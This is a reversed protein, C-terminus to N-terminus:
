TKVMVGKSTLLERVANVTSDAHDTMMSFHDGPVTVTEEAWDAGRDRLHELSQRARVMLVPADITPPRWDRLIRTYAGMAFLRTDDVGLGARSADDAACLITPLTRALLESDPSFTDLLVVAAPGAGISELQAALGYAIWGGSSHGSLAFGDGIDLASIQEAQARLLTDLNAPLPEGAVFGPLTLVQVAREGQLEQAFKAYEQPSSLAGISPIMVLTSAGAGSALRIPSPLEAAAPDDFSPRFASASALVEMFENLTDKRRAEGLLNVLTHGGDQAADDSGSGASLQAALFGAVGAPTPHDALALIPLSLGTAAALSNRLDLAGLSDLGLEGLARDPEVEDASECGLVAAARDRVIGLLEREQEPGPLRSLRIRLAAPEVSHTAPAQALRRLVPALAGAEAQARLASADLGVMTLAPEGMERACDFLDLGREVSLPRIGLRKVRSLAVQDLEVALNSELMWAGWAMSVAPLGQARRQAALADLFVNAAAYNAQGAAGLVGAVSSFLLFQSLNLGKTLEHLHWAGDVKPRMVGALRKRDLSALLGNDLVAAAHVVAGLPHEEPISDIVRALQAREAVDCAAVTVEAGLQALEERLAGAGPAEAGRRSVLLIHRIGHASVLHRAITAGAGGAGTVLVTAVPDIPEGCLEGETPRASTLRPALLKGERVALLPEDSGVNLAQPLAQWAAESGDVDVLAFRGRHEAQASRLLGWLPALRLDPSEGGADVAGETVFALRAAELPAAALWAQALQLAELSAAHAAEPLVGDRESPPCVLVVEPASDSAAVADLLAPLDHHRELELGPVHREGLAVLGPGQARPLPRDLPGWEIRYLSRDRSAAKVQAPELPRTAISGMSLVLSGQDDAVVTARESGSGVWVRLAANGGGHLRVNRWAFPLGAERQGDGEGPSALGSGVCSIADLLTPHVVFHGPDGGEAIAPVVEAFLEGDRQWVSRLCRFSPGCEVGADALRDYLVEADVSVAGEPPWATALTGAPALSEAAGRALSGVAHCTWQEPEAGGPATELRSFIAIERGGGEGPEGVAVRMQVAGSDPVALPERTSLQEIETAGVSAAAHLALELFTAAPVIPTGLVAHDALWSHTSASFRGSLQMSESDPLEIRAGLLPHGPDELGIAGVHGPASRPELWYRKRQFPYTPLSVPTARKFLAEWDFAVGHVHAEALSLAFRKPGGEDRRLSPLFTAGKVDEVSAITEEAGFALMPHPSVELFARHGMKLLSRLVPEFLVTQRLNRYWYEPGLEATDLLEGSVTSHFPISGSRPAISALAELMEERLDDIQASHAACDIALRQTKVDDRDCAARLEELAGPEGSLALTTPGNIAALSVRDAFPALREALETPALSIALTGGKGAIRMLAAARRIVILAADELSLGGAIHAAAIEGQSHGVVAAPHMGLEEWLRALSVMVAFLAPQVLDLRDLWDTDGGNLLELLSWDVHPAFAEECANMQAAFVSSSELLELGMGPWQAGQGPFLLVPRHASRVAGTAVGAAPEGRALAELGGLLEERDGGVVVSRHEFAPRGTALSYGVDALDLQSNDKLYSSLRAAQARLAGEDKASLPLLLPGPLPQPEDSGEGEPEDATAPAEELILHANTGSIGFSSVAARRPRGNGTWPAQEKLLEVAGASWDIIESPREVHLTKPLLGAQLAMTMKITGAVGAATAAHGINSKVSGLKLPEGRERGYTAFLAGAEIPDGLPTGTGHAEVADIDAPELQADALARRIVREQSPGNPATLGNSAGDQNVASGRLLALIRHGNTRADALRELVLLGAGEAVGTGDAGDAFSKCRGDPALVRQRGLDTFTMPTSMVAVGGALALSCERGRLAGMALHIAVLSSSCATDVTIAPGELGLTYAVRGSVVSASANTIMSAGPPPEVAMLQAYDGVAAGAFVGTPSGRLSSPDIGAAELAEWAVELLIRQQPDIAEADRPSIGFFLPDFEAISSLFGGEQVSATEPDERSARLLWEADWGRDTPFGSIADAGSAVLDWLDEASAVGGPYRCGIGVIAIPESLRKELATARRRAKRLDVTVKELYRRLKAEDSM